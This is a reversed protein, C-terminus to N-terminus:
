KSGGHVAKETGHQIKSWHRAYNFAPSNEKDHCRICQDAALFPTRMRPNDVHAQSPGHCSECGVHLHHDSERASVFGGPLGYNTVHCKQCGPDVQYGRQVLTEWSHHHKSAEWIEQDKPHCIQCTESGATRFNVPQNEPVPPTLGTEDARFAREGLALLYDRVNAAQDKEDAYSENLEVISGIWSEAENTKLRDFRVVFKGKNTASALLVPGVKQPAIAQGTPGGVVLDAEPLNRALDTLEEQPLYALVVLHDFQGDHLSAVELIADQPNAAKL